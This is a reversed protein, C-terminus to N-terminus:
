AAVERHTMLIARVASALFLQREGICVMDELVGDQVRRAVQGPSLDLIAAVDAPDLLVPSTRDLVSLTMLRAHRLVASARSGDPATTPWEVPKRASAPKGPPFPCASLLTEQPDQVSRKRRGLIGGRYTSGANLTKIM